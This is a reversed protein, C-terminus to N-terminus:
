LAAIRGSLGEGPSLGGPLFPGPGAPLAQHHPYDQSEDDMFQLSINKQYIIWIMIIIRIMIIRPDWSIDM